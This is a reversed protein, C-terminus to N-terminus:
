ARTAAKLAPRAQHRIAVMLGAASFALAGALVFVVAWSQTLALWAAFAGGALSALGKATYLMGQNAAAYRSGFRDATLAPFLAFMEGGTFYVMATLVVFAPPWSGLAPIVCLLLGTLAFAVTMTLERGFRDSVWGWVVRSAGNLIQQLVLAVVIVSATIGFDEAIPRTNATLILLGTAMCFFAVFALWFQGLRLLGLPALGEHAPSDAGLPALYEPAPSDVTAGPGVPLVAGSPRAPPTKLLLGVVLVAAGIFLGTVVFTPRVGYGELLRHVVPTFPAAGVGFGAAILGLALGRRNPFWRIGTGIAGAYVIGAGVGAISYLVYFLPRSGTVGLGGWGVVILAAAVIFALRPGRRDMFYGGLPQSLTQAVIFFTFALQVQPLSWPNQQELPTTFLTWSYQLPAICMMAVIAATLQLRRDRIRAPRRRAATGTHTAARV